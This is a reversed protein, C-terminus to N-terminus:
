MACDEVPEQQVALRARYLNTRFINRGIPVGTLEAVHATPLTKAGEVSVKKVALRPSNFAVDLTEAGLALLCLSLLVRLWDPRKRNRVRKPPRPRVRRRNLL